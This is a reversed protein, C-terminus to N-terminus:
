LLTSLSPSFHSWSTGIFIEKLLSKIKLIVGYHNQVVSFFSQDALVQVNQLLFVIFRNALKKFARQMIWLNGNKQFANKLPTVSHNESIWTEKLLHLFDAADIDLLQINYKDKWYSEEIGTFGPRVAYSLPLSKTDLEELCQDLIEQFNTDMFSYGVFLLTKRQLDNKLRKFLPKRHTEYYRYDHKTIILRGKDTNAVDISGHLKYYVISNESCNTLDTELSFIPVISGICTISPSKSAQEVLQDYNTTFITDWPLQVLSLHATGPKYRSFKDYLYSNFAEKGFKYIAMGAAEDLSTDLEPTNLLDTCIWKSLGKGNPFIDGEDCQLGHNIGAGLFLSATRESLRDCLVKVASIIKESQSM